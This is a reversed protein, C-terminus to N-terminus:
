CQVEGKTERKFFSSYVSSLLVVAIIFLIVVRWWTGVFVSWDGSGMALATRTNIEIVPGLIIAMVTPVVSFGCKEFLYGVGGFILAIYVSYMANQGAFAGVIVLVLVFPFIWSRDQRLVRIFWSCTYWSMGWMLLTSVLMAGLVAYVMQPHDRMLTVGPDLGYLTLASLMIATSGDGPIGLTLMPVLTGGNNANNTAEPVLVGEPAGQGFREPNPDRNKVMAYAIWTSGEGGVGPVAGIVTGLLSGFTMPKWYDRMTAWTSPMKFNLKGGELMEPVNGVEKIDALVVALGFFGVLAANFPIGTSLDAIGYVFRAAGDNADLGISAILLGFAVGILGRVMNGKVFASVMTLGLLGILAIDEPQSHIVISGIVPVFIVALIWGIVGGYASSLISYGMAKGAEGRQAMPYGDLATCAGAPTGPTRLLISPYAGGTKTGTYVGMLLMMAAIPPVKLYYTIPLIIVIAMPSSIGPLAGVILGLFTGVAMLIINLPDFMSIYLGEWIHSMTELVANM